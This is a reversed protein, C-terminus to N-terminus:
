ISLRLRYSRLHRQERQKLTTDTPYWGPFLIPVLTQYDFV